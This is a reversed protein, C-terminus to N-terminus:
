RETTLEKLRALEKELRRVQASLDPLNRFVAYSRHYKIGPMAPSGMYTEGDPVSNSIGSKSALKVGDGISLHGAIGVQGGMMCGAGVKSSGAIGVQSAAVTNEGITVNHGVQILNDLKVGRRIVTSGMTARDICTNAGIEVDDEICVNGIQPIKHFEGKEDPAFGFGDAGIVSGAHITVRDGIRCEEYIKVGPYLTVGDGLVVRDGLYVQPYIKCDKGTRVGEGIVAYEGVYTEPGIAATEHIAALPSIGKKQPKNAVYLELLKAFCSYADEVRIMTAAVPASPTFSKNVIVITAQTTYLHHEYKPNALFALAGPKAEEIKAFTSVAAKPDGAVEGGLYGAILEATFEM